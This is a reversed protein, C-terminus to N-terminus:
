TIDGGAKRCDVSCYGTGKFISVNIPKHCIRCIDKDTPPDPVRLRSVPEQYGATLGCNRCWPPKGDRHQKPEHEKCIPEDPCFYKEVVDALRLAAGEYEHIRHGRRADDIADQIAQPIEAM